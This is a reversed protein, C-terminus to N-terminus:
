LGSIGRFGTHDFTFRTGVPIPELQYTILTPSEGENVIRIDSRSPSM